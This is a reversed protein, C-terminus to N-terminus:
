HAQLSKPQPGAPDARDKLVDAATVAKAKNGWAGRIYSIAGALQEDTLEDKFAPMGGRGKLVTMIVPDAPGLVFGNGKLAPFAGPVGTGEAQHCASCSELFVEEPTAAPAPTAAAALVAVALFLSLRM